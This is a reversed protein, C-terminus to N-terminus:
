TCGASPAGLASDIERNTRALAQQIDEAELLPRGIVLLHAGARIAEAPTATRHQDDGRTYWAPRIGPCIKKIPLQRIEELERASCVLYGYRGAAERAMRAVMAAIGPGRYYRSFHEAGISTLITVGALKEGSLGEAAPDYGATCHVTTIDAGASLHQRLSETMASPIDYLKFDLMVRGYPRIEALVGLGRDLVARRIKYGWVRGSTRTIIERAQNWPLHDLPLIIRSHM